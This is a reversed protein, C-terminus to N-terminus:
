SGFEVTLTVTVAKPQNVRFAGLRQFMAHTGTGMMVAGYRSRGDVWPEAFAMCRGKITLNSVINLMLISCIHYIQYRWARLRTVGRSGALFALLSLRESLTPIACFLM